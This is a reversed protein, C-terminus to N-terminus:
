SGTFEFEVGLEMGLIIPNQSGSGELTATKKPQQALNLHPQHTTSAHNIRPQPKPKPYIHV